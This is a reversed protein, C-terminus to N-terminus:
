RQLEAAASAVAEDVAPLVEESPARVSFYADEVLDTLAGLAGAPQKERVHALIERPTWKGWLALDPLLPAAIERYRTFVLERVPVLDIHVSRLEGRHPLSLPLSFTVYGPARVTLTVSGAPLEELTFEGNEDAHATLEGAVLVAWPVPQQRVCDRVTGSIGLDHARRLSSMLGARGIKLGPVLPAPAEAVGDATAPAAPQKKWRLFPRMRWVGFSLLGLVTAAFAGIPYAIPIPRPELVFVVRAPLRFGRRWAVRSVHELALSAPGVGLKAAPISFRFSGDSDAEAEDARVGKLELTILAGPVANGEGDVLRGTVRLEGDYSLAREPTDLDRLTTDTVVLLHAEAEAPNFIRNGPFRVIVRKEGPGGLKAQPIKLVARGDLATELRAVGRAEGTAGDAVLVELTVAAPNGESEAALTIPVAEETAEVEAALDIRLMLRGKGVTSTQKVEAGAQLEDARFRAIFEYEGEELPLHAFFTGDLRTTGRAIHDGASVEVDKNSVPEGTAADVVTGRVQVESGTRAVGDITVKTRARITVTPAASADASLALVAIAFCTRM